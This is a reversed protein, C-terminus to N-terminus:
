RRRPGAVVASTFAPDIRAFGIEDVLVTGADARDFVFRVGTLADLDLAPNAQRFDALPLTFTQLVLEHHAGFRSEDRDRRRLIWAELPRRIVGYAGLPVSARDGEADVLEVSLDVPPKEEDEDEEERESSPPEENSQQQAQPDTESPPPRRPGPM